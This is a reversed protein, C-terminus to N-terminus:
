WIVQDLINAQEGILTKVVNNHKDLLILRPVGKNAYQKYIARDPDAVLDFPLQYDINFKSLTTSNEERGIAIIQVSSDHLLPSAQLEKLTRQSDSCWTAFLIVLKNKNPNLTIPAGKINNFHTHKFAQGVQIYTEYRSDVNVPETVTNCGSLNACLLTSILTASLKNIM